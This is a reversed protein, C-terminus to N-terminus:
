NIQNLWLLSHQRGNANDMIRNEYRSCDFYYAVFFPGVFFVQHSVSISILYDSLCFNNPNPKDITRFLIQFCKKGGGGRSRTFFINCGRASIVSVVKRKVSNASIRPGKIRRENGNLKFFHFTVGSM